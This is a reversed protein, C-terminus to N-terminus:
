SFVLYFKHVVSLTQKCLGYRKLNKLSEKGCIKRPKNKFVNDWKNIVYKNLSAFNTEIQCMGNTINLQLEM